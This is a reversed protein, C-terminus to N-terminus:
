SLNSTLKKFRSRFLSSKHQSLYQASSVDDIVIDGVNTAAVATMSFHGHKWSGSLVVRENLGTIVFPYFDPELPSALDGM